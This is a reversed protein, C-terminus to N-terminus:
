STMQRAVVKAVIEDFGQLPDFQISEIGLMQAAQVNKPRDDVFLLDAAMFGSSNLLEEYIKPDPKRVHVDGSIISGSLLRELGFYERLKRSWCGLDNSLCWVPLHRQRAIDVLEIVGNSLRHRALYDDELNADVGVKEWFEDASIRGLSADLYASQVVDVEGGHEAVFPILLEVVDDAAQFIVGMADLVLCKM